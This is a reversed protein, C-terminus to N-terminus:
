GGSGAGYGHGAGQAPTSGGVRSGDNVWSWLQRMYCFAVGRVCVRVCSLAGRDEQARAQLVRDEAPPGSGEGRGEAGGRCDECHADLVGFLCQSACGEGALVPGAGRDDAREEHPQRLRRRRLVASARPGDVAARPKAAGERRGPARRNPPPPESCGVAHPTAAPRTTLVPRSAACLRGPRLPSHFASALFRHRPPLQHAKTALPRSLCNRVSRSVPDDSLIVAM